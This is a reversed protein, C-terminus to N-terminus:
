VHARGIENLSIGTSTKSSADFVVRLKTTSNDEKIVCHHPIYYHLSAISHDDRLERMHGLTAYEHIFDAYDNKLSPKRKFRTELKKLRHIAIDKSQGLQSMEEAKVPLKVVFRGEANRVYNKEFHEVCKQEEWTLENSRAGQEIEWFRKM